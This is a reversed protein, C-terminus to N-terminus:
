LCHGIFALGGWGGCITGAAYSIVFIVFFTFLNRCKFRMFLCACCANESVLFVIEGDEAGRVEYLSKVIADRTLDANRVGLQKTFVERTTKVVRQTLMSELVSEKVGLLSALSSLGQEPRANAFLLPLM